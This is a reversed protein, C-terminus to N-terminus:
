LIYKFWFVSLFVIHTEKLTEGPLGYLFVKQAELIDM